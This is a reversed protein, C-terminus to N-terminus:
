LPLMYYWKYKTKDFQESSMWPIDEKNPVYHFLSSLSLLLEAFSFNWWMEAHYLFLSTLQCTFSLPPWCPEPYASLLRQGSSGTLAPEGPPCSLSLSLSSLCPYTCTLLSVISPHNVSAFLPGGEWKRKRRLHCSCRAALLNNVGGELGCLYIVWFFLELSTSHM